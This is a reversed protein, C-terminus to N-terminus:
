PLPKCCSKQDELSMTPSAFLPCGFVPFEALLATEDDMRSVLAEVAAGPGAHGRSSTLGGSFLLKGTTAFLFAHGSTTAGLSRAYQGDRDLHVQVEPLAAARSVLNTASWNAAVDSPQLVLVHVALRGPHELVISELADLTASTCPCQPHATLVLTPRHLDRAFRIQEPWYQPLVATPGPTNAYQWLTGFGWALATIWLAMGFVLVIWFRRQM